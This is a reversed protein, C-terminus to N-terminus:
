YPIDDLPHAPRPGDLEAKLRSLIADMKAADGKAANWEARIDGSPKIGEADYGKLIERLEATYDRAKPPEPEDERYKVGDWLGMYVDAAVGLMKLATGLADTVAMKFAEDNSYLGKSEKDILMAGGVGPVPGIDGAKVSVHAFAMIQGDSGAETWLEVIEFSWGKGCPGFEETMAKYRWQPSIDSKGKLRGASIPRLASSPPRALKDWLDLNGM